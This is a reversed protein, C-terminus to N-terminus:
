DRHRRRDPLDPLADFIFGESAYVLWAILALIALFAGLILFGVAAAIPVAIILTARNRVFPRALLVSGAIVIALGGLLAAIGVPTHLTDHWALRISYKTVEGALQEARGLRWVVVAPIAGGVFQLALGALIWPRRSRVTALTGALLGLRPSPDLEPATDM